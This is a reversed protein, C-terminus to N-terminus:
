QEPHPLNIEWLLSIATGGQLDERGRGEIREGWMEGGKEEETEEVPGIKGRRGKGRGERGKNGKGEGERKRDGREERRRM